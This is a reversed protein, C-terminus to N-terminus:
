SGVLRQEPLDGQCFSISLPQPEIRTIEPPRDSRGVPRCGPGRPTEKAAGLLFGGIGCSVTARSAVATEDVDRIWSFTLSVFTVLRTELWGVRCVVGFSLEPGTLSWGRSWATGNQNVASGSPFPPHRCSPGMGGRPSSPISSTIVQCNTMTVSVSSRTCRPATTAPLEELVASYTSNNRGRPAQPRPVCLSWWSALLKTTTRLSCSVSRCSSTSRQM